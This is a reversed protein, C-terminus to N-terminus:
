KYIPDHLNQFKWRPESFDIIETLTAESKKKSPKISINERKKDFM